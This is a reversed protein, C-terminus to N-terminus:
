TTSPWRSSTGASRTSRSGPTATSSDTAMVASASVVEFYRSADLRSRTDRNMRARFSFGSPQCPAKGTTSSPLVDPLMEWDVLDVSRRIATAVREQLDFVDDM